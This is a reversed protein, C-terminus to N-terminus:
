GANQRSEHAPVSVRRASPSFGRTTQPGVGIRVIESLESSRRRSPEGLVVTTYVVYWM